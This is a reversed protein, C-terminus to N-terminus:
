NWIRGVTAAIKQEFRAILECNAAVLRQESEIESVIQQQTALTQSRCPALRRHQPTSTRQSSGAALAKGSM